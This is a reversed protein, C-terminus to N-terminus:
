VTSCIRTNTSVQKKFSKYEPRNDVPYMKSNISESLYDYYGPYNPMYGGGETPVSGYSFEKGTLQSITIWGNDYYVIKGMSVVTCIDDELSTHNIRFLQNKFVFGWMDACKVKVKKGGNEFNIFFRRLVYSIGIGDDMKVLKGSKYDQFTKYYGYVTSTDSQKAKHPLVFSTFIAYGIVLIVTRKKM